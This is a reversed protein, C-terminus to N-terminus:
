PNPPEPLPQWHTPMHWNVDSIPGDHYEDNSTGAWWWDTTDTDFYAEGIIWGTRDKDPVAVIVPTRDKPATEIPQWRSVFPRAAALAARAAIGAWKRTGVGLAAEIARKAAEVCEDSGLPDHVPDPM